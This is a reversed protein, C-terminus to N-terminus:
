KGGPRSAPDCKSKVESFVQYPSLQLFTSLAGYFRATEASQDRRIIATAAAKSKVAM